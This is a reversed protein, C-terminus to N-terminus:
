YVFRFAGPKMSPSSGIPCDRPSLKEAWARYSFMPVPNMVCAQNDYPHLFHFLQHGLEHAAGLGALRAAEAPNFTEGGRMERVWPDDTTFAFTSWVSYTRFRSSRSYTTLGNNYGGRISTHVSPDVDEVSAIIQNTIVLEYPLDGYGALNWMNYENYPTADIAPGGDLAPVAQWHKIRELQLQVLASGLSEYSQEPLKGLYPRVYGMMGPLSEGEERLARGFDRALKVPDGSGSKFDYAHAQAELRRKEPIIRFFEEISM